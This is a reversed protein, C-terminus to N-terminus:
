LKSKGQQQNSAVAKAGAISQRAALDLLIEESGGPIAEARVNRYIREVLKGAGEKVISSGGFIQSAERACLELAKSAAVKQLACMTGMSMDTAGMKYQYAIRENGDYLSDTVRLMEALKWRIVQHETLPKGFTKRRMAFKLSESYCLRAFRCAEVAIVFREHNFNLLIYKFGKGEEGILRNVPVMVNDFEIFTTGHCTDFQTEMKRIKIGPTKADVLLVSLGSGGAGGTRVVLSFFDAMHGGTIWKKQGNVRYFDGERQATCRINAVDSGASPESIALSINKTGDIVSDAVLDQLMPSGAFMVPPIAMSNIGCQGMAGGPVNALEDLYILEHFADFGGEPVMRSPYRRQVSQALGSCPLGRAFAKQHLELPYSSLKGSQYGSIWTDVHPRIEEEVFKRTKERLAKHSQGYHPSPFGQYWYPECGPAQDGFRESPAAM